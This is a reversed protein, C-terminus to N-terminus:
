PGYTTPAPATESVPTEVPTLLMGRGFFAKGGTSISRTHAAAAAAAAAASGPHMPPPLLFQRGAKDMDHIADAILGADWLPLIRYGLNDMICRETTNIQECTWMDNGWATRYFTTREEHDDLFKVAIMLAALVIVEPNVCDIHLLQSCSGGSGGPGAGLVRPGESITHRKASETSTNNSSTLSPWLPAPPCLLRWSLSFRSSLSDLICVALALTDFPLDARVLMEHVIPVSPTTLSAAPPVLNVLHVAPGLLQSDLIGGDELLSRPSQAIASDRSSPPPTPLNSLPRYTQSFYEDDFDDDSYDDDRRKGM